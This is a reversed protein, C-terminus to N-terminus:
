WVCMELEYDTELIATRNPIENEVGREPDGPTNRFRDFKDRRWM